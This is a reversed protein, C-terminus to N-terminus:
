WSPAFSVFTEYRASRVGMAGYAYGPHLAASDPTEELVLQRL